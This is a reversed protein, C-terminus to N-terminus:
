REGSRPNFCLCVPCGGALPAKKLRVCHVAGGGRVHSGEQVIGLRAAREALVQLVGHRGGLPQFYGGEVAM